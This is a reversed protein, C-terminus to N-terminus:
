FIHVLAGILAIAFILLILQSPKWGKKILYVMVFLACVGLLGPFVSNIVDGVNVAGGERGTTNIVLNLPINVMNATMAGVMMLGLVGACKTLVQILGSSFVQDIFATGLDYGTHLLLYKVVSQSVGYLLLFVIVGLFNGTRCMGIAIGAAIVRLANFFLSDFMGATPGMLAAKINEITAGDVKGEKHQKEMAGALGAIFSFAVAHTNFFQQHRAVAEKMEEPDDKYLEQLLPAMTITFGNAEMKVMSFSIFVLHSYLFMKDLIKKETPTYNAKAM